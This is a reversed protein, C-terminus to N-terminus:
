FRARVSYQFSDGLLGGPAWAFGAELRRWEVGFGVSLGGLAGADGRDSRWGLRGAASLDRAVPFRREVGLALITADDRPQDLEAALKWEARPKWGAGLYLTAPLRDPTAGLSVSGFADRVGAGASWDGDKYLAGADATFASGHAGALTEDVMKLSAGVALRAGLARGYSLAVARDAFTASGTPADTETLGRADIGNTTLSYVSAAAVGWDESGKPRDTWALVPVSLAAYDYNLGQPRAERGADAEIASLFGLGAPNYHAALADDAIGGFAGGLASERAGPSLTLFAAGTTGKGSAGLASAPRAGLTVAVLALAALRARRM